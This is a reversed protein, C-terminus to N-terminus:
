AITPENHDRGLLVWTLLLGPLIELGCFCIINALVIQDVTGGKCLWLKLALSVVAFLTGLLCQLRLWHMGNWFMAVASGLLQITTWAAMSALLKGKLSFGTGLWLPVLIDRAIFLASTVFGAFAFAIILSTLFTRKLWRFDGRSSADAYAPWLPALLINGTVLTISFYRSALAYDAAAAAGLGKAIIVTDLSFGVVGIIQILFFWLGSRFLARSQEVSFASIQPALWPRNRTVLAWTACSGFLNPMVTAACLQGFTGGLYAVIFVTALTMCQVCARVLNVIFGEQLANAIRDGTSLPLSLVAYILFAALGGWAAKAAAPPLGTDLTLWGLAPMLLYLTVGCVVSLASLLIPATGVTARLAHRDGKANAVAIANLMGNGIGFDAFAMNSLLSHLTSWVGFLETGMAHLLTPIMVYISVASITKSIFGTLATWGIRRGRERQADSSDRVETAGLDACPDTNVRTADSHTHHTHVNHKM